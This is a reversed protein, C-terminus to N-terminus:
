WSPEPGLPRPRAVHRQGDGIALEEDEEARGTGALRRREAEHRPELLHVAAPDGDGAVVDGREIRRGAIDGEDELLVREVRV